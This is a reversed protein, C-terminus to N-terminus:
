DAFRLGMQKLGSMLARKTRETPRYKDFFEKKRHAVIQDMLLVDDLTLRDIFRRMSADPAFVAAAYCRRFKNEPVKSSQNM